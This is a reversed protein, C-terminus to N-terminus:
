PYLGFHKLATLVVQVAFLFLTGLVVIGIVKILDNM